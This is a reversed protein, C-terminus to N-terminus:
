KPPRLLSIRRHRRVKMIARGESERLLTLNTGAEQARIKAQEAEQERQLQMREENLRRKEDEKRHQHYWVRTEEPMDQMAKAKSVVYGLQCAVRTAIDLAEKTAEYRDLLEDETLEEEEMDEEDYDADGPRAPEYGMCPM